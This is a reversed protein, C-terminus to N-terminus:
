RTIEALSLFLNWVVRFKGGCHAGVGVGCLSLKTTAMRELTTAFYVSWLFFFSAPSLTSTYSFRDPNCAFPERIISTPPHQPRSMKEATSQCHGADCCGDGSIHGHGCLDINTGGFLKRIWHCIKTVKTISRLKPTSPMGSDCEQRGPNLDRGLSLSDNTLVKKM